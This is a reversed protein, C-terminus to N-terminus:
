LNTYEQNLEEITLIESSILSGDSDKEVVFILGKGYTSYKAQVMKGDKIRQIKVLSDKNLHNQLTLHAM